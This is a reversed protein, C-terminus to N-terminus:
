SCFEGIQRLERELKDYMQRYKAEENLNLEIKGEITKTEELITEYKMKDDIVKKSFNTADVVADQAKIVNKVRLLMLKADHEANDCLKKEEELTRNLGDIDKKLQDPSEVIQPVLKREKVGLEQMALETTDIQDKLMNSEKKLDQSEQRIAAQLKNQKAIEIEVEGCDDDVVKADKWRQDANRKAQDLDENLREQEEWVKLLNETLEDKQENIGHVFSSQKEYMFKIYNIIGSLQRKFRKTSPSHLDHIGFDQIGSIRMLKMLAKIFKLNTFSEDHLDPHPLSQRKQMLAMSTNAFTEKPIDLGIVVQSIIPYYHYYHYYYSSIKLDKQFFM